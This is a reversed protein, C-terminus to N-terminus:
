SNENRKRMFEKSYRGNKTDKHFYDLTEPLEKGCKTCVKM